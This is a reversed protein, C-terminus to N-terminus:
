ILQCASLPETDFSHNFVSAVLYKDGYSLAGDSMASPIDSIRKVSPMENGLEAWAGALDLQASNAKIQNGGSGAWGDPITTFYSSNLM